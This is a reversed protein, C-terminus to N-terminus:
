LHLNMRAQAAKKKLRPVGFPFEALLKAFAKVTHIHLSIQSKAPQVYWMAPFRM